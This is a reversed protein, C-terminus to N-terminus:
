PSDKSETKTAMRALAQELLAHDEKSIREAAGANAEAEAETQRDLALEIVRDLARMDGNLAKKRLTRLAAQQTTFTVGSGDTAQVALDLMRDRDGKFGRASKRRGRPNGSQGPKWRHQRPPKRYGVAEDSGESPPKDEESM